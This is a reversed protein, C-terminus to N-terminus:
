ANAAMAVALLDGLRGLDALSSLRVEIWDRRSPERHVAPDGAYRPKARTWGANTVRLDIVGPAELHAIERGGVFLAPKDGFRSRREKAHGAKLIADVFADWLPDRHDAVMSFRLDPRHRGSDPRRNAGAGGPCVRGSGAAPGVGPAPLGSAGVGQTLDTVVVMQKRDALDIGVIANTVPVLVRL